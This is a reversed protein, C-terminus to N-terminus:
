FQPLSDCGCMESPSNWLTTARCRYSSRSNILWVPDDSLSLDERQTFKSTIYASKAALCEELSRDSYFIVSFGQWNALWDRDDSKLHFSKEGERHRM